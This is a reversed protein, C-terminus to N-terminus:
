SRGISIAISANVVSLKNCSSELLFLEQGSLIKLAGEAHKISIAVALHALFLEPKDKPAAMNGLATLLHPILDHRLDVFVIVPDDRVILELVSHLHDELLAGSEYLADCPSYFCFLELQYAYYM